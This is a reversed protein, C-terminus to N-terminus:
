FIYFLVLNNQVKSQRLEVQSLMHNLKVFQIYHIQPVTQIKPCLIAFYLKVYQLDMNSVMHTGDDLSLTKGKIGARVTQTQDPRREGEEDQRKQGEGVWGGLRGERM